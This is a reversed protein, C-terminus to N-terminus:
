RSPPAPPSVPVRRRRNIAGLAVLLAAGRRLSPKARFSSRLQRLGGPDGRALLARGAVWAAEAEARHRALPLADGLRAGLEPNQFIANICAAHPAPEHARGLYAGEHRQRVFLVPPGSVPVFRGLLALRIWYEYDEGFRLETRFPGARDLAGRRILLHGGNAFHNRDLMAALADRGVRPRKVRSVRNGPDRVLAFAGCALIADGRLAAGLRALADPALWDDADLFLVADVEPLAAVGANRATSVGANPQSVVTVRPDDLAALLDATSDTSGDDVVVM